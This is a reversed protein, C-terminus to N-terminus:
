AQFGGRFERMPINAFGVQLLGSFRGRPSGGEFVTDFVKENEIFNAGGIQLLAVFKGDKLHNYGGLQLAGIFYPKRSTNKAKVDEDLERNIKNHAGIQALAIVHRTRNLAAAQEAPEAVAPDGPKPPEAAAAISPLGALLAAFFAGCLRNRWARKVVL